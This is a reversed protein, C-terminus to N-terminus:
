HTPPIGWMEGTNTGALIGNEFVFDGEAVQNEITIKLDPFATRFAVMAEILGARGASAGPPASHDVVDEAVIEELTALDAPLRPRTAATPHLCDPLGPQM